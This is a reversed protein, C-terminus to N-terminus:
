FPFLHGACIGAIMEFVVLALTVIGAMYAALTRLRKMVGPPAGPAPPAPPAGSPLKLRVTQPNASDVAVAVTGGPQMADQEDPGLNKETLAVYPERGPITVELEIRCLRRGRYDASKKLSLVRATGTVEPDNPSRKAWVRLILFGIVLTGLVILIPIPFNYLFYGVGRGGALNVSSALNMPDM